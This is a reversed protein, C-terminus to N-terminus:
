RNGVSFVIIFADLEGEWKKPFYIMHLSSLPQFPEHMSILRVKVMTTFEPECTEMRWLVSM